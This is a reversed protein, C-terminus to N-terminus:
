RRCAIVEIGTCTCSYAGDGVASVRAIQHCHVPVICSMRCGTGTSLTCVRAFMRM